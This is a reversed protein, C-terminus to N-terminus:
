KFAAAEGMSSACGILIASVFAVSGDPESVDSTILGVVAAIAMEGGCANLVVFLLSM